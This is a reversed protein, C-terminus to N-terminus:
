LPNKKIKASNRPYQPPTAKEKHIIILRRKDGCPLTYDIVSELRGGLTKCTNISEEINENPGKLAAFKGGAKVFPLCYECLVPLPAVARAAAFDFKERFNSNNGGDEARSHICKLDLSLDNSVNKLFNVRKNLSDLLTIKLDNRFIKLPIGPFGAGTGVDIVSSNKQIDVFKLMAISDLMHKETIDAPETIATLNMTKNTEVLMEAYRNFLAYEEKALEFGFKKFLEAAEEFQLIMM